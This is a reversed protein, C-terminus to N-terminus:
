VGAVFLWLAEEGIAHEKAAPQRAFRVESALSEQSLHQEGARM